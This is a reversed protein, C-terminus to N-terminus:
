QAVGASTGSSRNVKFEYTAEVSRLKGAGPENEILDDDLIVLKYRTLSEEICTLLVEPFDNDKFDVSKPSDKADFTVTVELTGEVDPQTRRLTQYCTRLDTSSARLTRDGGWKGIGNFTVASRSVDARGPDDAAVIPLSAGSKGGSLLTMVDDHREQESATTPLAPRARIPLESGMSDKPITEWDAKVEDETPRPKAKSQPEPEAPQKACACLLVLACM